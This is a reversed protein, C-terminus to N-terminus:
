HHNYIMCGQKLYPNKDLKLHCMSGRSPQATRESELDQKQGATQGEWEGGEKKTKTHISTPLPKLLLRYGTFNISYYNNHTETKGFTTLAFDDTHLRSFHRNWIICQASLILITIYSANKGCCRARKNAPEHDCSM